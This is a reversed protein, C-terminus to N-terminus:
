KDLSLMLAVRELGRQHFRYIQREDYNMAMAIRFFPMGELYRMEMVTRHRADPLTSLLSRIATETETLRRYDALLEEEADALSAAADGVRDGAGSGGLPGGLARTVREGQERLRDLQALRLSIMASIRRASSLYERAAAIAAPTIQSSLAENNM